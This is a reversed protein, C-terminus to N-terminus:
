SVAVNKVNFQEILQDKYSKLANLEDTLQSVKHKLQSEDTERANKLRNITNELNSVQFLTFALHLFVFPWFVGQSRVIHAFCVTAKLSEIQKSDRKNDFVDDLEAQLAQNEINEQPLPLSPM